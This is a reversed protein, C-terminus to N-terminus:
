CSLRSLQISVAGINGSDNSDGALSSQIKDGSNSASTQVREVLQHVKLGDYNNKEHSIFAGLAGLFGEHRLFMAKAEGKSRFFFAWVNYTFDLIQQM